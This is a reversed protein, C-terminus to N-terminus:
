RGALLNIGMVGLGTFVAAWLTIGALQWLAVSRRPAGFTIMAAASFQNPIVMQGVLSVGPVGFRRFMRRLKQQRASPSATQAHRGAVRRAGNGLLMFGLVSAMNGVVASIGAVIPPVGIAVGILAGFHSEVFPIASVLAVALWQLWVPFSAAFAQLTEIM